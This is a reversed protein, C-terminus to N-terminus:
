RIDEMILLSIFWLFTSSVSQKNTVADLQNYLEDYQTTHLNQNWNRRFSFAVRHYRKEKENRSNFIYSNKKAQIQCICEEEVLHTGSLSLIDIKYKIADEVQLLKGGDITVRRVELTAINRIIAINAM